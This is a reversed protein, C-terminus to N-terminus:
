APAPNFKLAPQDRRLLVMSKLLSIRMFLGREVL